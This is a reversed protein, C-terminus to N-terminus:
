LLIARGWHRWSPTATSLSFAPQEAQGLMTSTFGRGRCAQPPSPAKGLQQPFTPYTRNASDMPHSLLIYQLTASSLWYLGSATPYSNVQRGMQEKAASCAAWGLCLAWGPTGMQWPKPNPEYPVCGAMHMRMAVYARGSAGAARLRAESRRPVQISQHPRGKSPFYCIPLKQKRELKSLM